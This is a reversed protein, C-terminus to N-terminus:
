ITRACIQHINPTTTKNSFSPDGLWGYVQHFPTDRCYAMSHYGHQNLIGHVHYLDGVREGAFCGWVMVSGGGHKITPVVCTSRMREGERRRVFVRRNSGFIEFKSEDTWLVSKWEESTWNRHKKAWALRKKRNIVRLLPKKAAIRGKLGADRLRRQVTSTSVDTSRTANLQAQIEPATLRRNRLSTVRIFKNDSKSTVRPRGSRKRDELTGTQEFQKVTKAVATVSLQLTRAIKRLSQGENRLTIASQRKEKSIQATKGM